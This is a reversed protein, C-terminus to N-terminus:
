WVILGFVFIAKDMNLHIRLDKGYVTIKFPISPYVALTYCPLIPEFRPNLPYLFAFQPLILVLVHYM